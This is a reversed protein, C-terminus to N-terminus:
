PDLFAACRARILRLCALGIFAVRCSTHVAWTVHDSLSGVFEGSKGFRLTQFSVPIDKQRSNRQIKFSDQSGRVPLRRVLHRWCGGRRLKSIKFSSRQM